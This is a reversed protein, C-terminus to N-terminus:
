AKRGSSSLAPFQLLRWSWRKRAPLSTPLEVMRGREEEEVAVEVVPQKVATAAAAPAPPSSAVKNSKSSSRDAGRSMRNCQDCTSADQRPSSPTRHRPSPQHHLLPSTPATHRPLTSSFRATTTSSIHKSPDSRHEERRERQPRRRSQSRHRRTTSPRRSSSRHRRVGARGSSRTPSRGRLQLLDSDNFSEDDFDFIVPPSSSYAHSSHPHPSPPCKKCASSSAPYRQQPRPRSHHRDENNSISAIITLAAM